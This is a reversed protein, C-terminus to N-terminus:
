KSFPNLRQWFSKSEKPKEAASNPNEVPALIEDVTDASDASETRFLPTGFLSIVEQGALPGTNGAEDVDDISTTKFPNLSAWFGTPESRNRRVGSAVLSDMTGEQRDEARFVVGPLKVDVKHKRRLDGKLWKQYREEMAKVSLEGRIKEKVDALPLQRGGERGELKILHIAGATRIPQSVEGVSLNTFALDSIEKLLSGRSIWGLDGGETAGAGESYTEALKGFDEGALVRRRIEAAKEMATKGGDPSEQSVNLLIHRLKVREESVYKKQNLSYYREVDEPTINIKKRVQNDLIDSKEIEGRVSARYKEYTVGERKLAERLEEDNVQNRQKIQAIYNDIDEESVKIGAQKVEAAMLKDTIFHELVEQDEKGLHNLDGAPFDRGMQTRAYEKFNTLTYPEGDLVVIVQEVVTATVPPAQFSILWALVVLAHYLKRRQM